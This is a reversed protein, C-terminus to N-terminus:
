PLSATAALVAPGLWAAVTTATAETFHVGDPRLAPDLEGGPLSALHGALDVEIAGVRGTLASHLLEDFRHMRAPDSAPYPTRPPPTELRGLQIIPSSLWVVHVGRAQLLDLTADIKASLLEDVKPDGLARWVREGPLRHDAADLPGFQVVVTHVEPHAALTADLDALRSRCGGDVPQETTGYRFEGVDILGCGFPTVLEAVHMRGTDHGWAALGWGTRFATSDGYLVVEVPPPPVATATAAPATPSVPAEGPATGAPSSSPSRQAVAGGASGTTATAGTATAGTATGSSPHQDRYPFAVLAAQDLEHDVPSVPLVVLGTLIVGALPVARWGLPARVREPSDARVTPAPDVLRHALAAAALSAVVALESWWRRRTLGLDALLLVVPWHLLYIGYSRHGLWRLPRLCLVATFTTRHPSSAAVLAAGTALATVLFGGRYVGEGHLTARWCLLAVVAVAAFGLASAGWGARTWPSRSGQASRLRARWARAAMAALGGVAFEGIRSPTAFYAFSTAGRSAAVQRAVEAAIATIALVATLRVARRSSRAGAVADPRACYHFEQEVVPRFRAEIEPAMGYVAMLGDLSWLGPADEHHVHVSAAPFCGLGAVHDEHAHSVLVRDVAVPAGGRDHITTSPDTLVVGESGQVLLSNGSPYKGNDAGMLAVSRGLRRDTALFTM